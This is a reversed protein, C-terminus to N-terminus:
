RKFNNKEKFIEYLCIIYRSCMWDYEKRGIEEGAWGFCRGVLEM